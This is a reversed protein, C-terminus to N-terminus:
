KEEDLVKLRHFLVLLARVAQQPVVGNGSMQLAQRRYRTIYGIEAESYGLPSRDPDLVPPAVGHNPEGVPSKAEDEIAGGDALSGEDGSENVPTTAKGDHSLQAQRQEDKADALGEAERGQDGDGDRDSLGRVGRENVGGDQESQTDALPIVRPEEWEHQCQDPRSPWYPYNELNHPKPGSCRAEDSRECGKRCVKEEEGLLRGLDRSGRLGGCDYADALRAGIFWRYRRHPASVERASVTTATAHYGMKELSEMVHLLVSTDPKGNLKSSAIGDVNEFICLEPRADAIGREIIPWLHRDDEAGGDITRNGCVSFPQCPFGGSILLRDLGRFRTFPFTALNTWIPAVPLNGEEIRSVLTAQCYAERECYCLTRVGRGLVASLALDIGGYGTCLSVHQFKNTNDM